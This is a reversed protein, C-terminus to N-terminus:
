VYEENNEEVFTKQEKPECTGDGGGGGGGGGNSDLPSMGWFECLGINGDTGADSSRDANNPAIHLKLM